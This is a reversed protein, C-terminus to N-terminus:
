SVPTEWNGESQHNGVKWDIGRKLVMHSVEMERMMTDSLAWYKYWFMVVAQIEARYFLASVRSDAEEWQLLNVLRQRVARVKSINWHM